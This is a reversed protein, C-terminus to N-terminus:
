LCSSSQLGTWPFYIDSFDQTPKAAVQYVCTSNYIISKHVQCKLCQCTIEPPFVSTLTHLHHLSPIIFKCVMCISKYTNHLSHNNENWFCVFTCLKRILDSLGLNWWRILIESMKEKLFFLCSNITHQQFMETVM